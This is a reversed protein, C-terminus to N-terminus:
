IELSKGSALYGLWDRPVLKPFGVVRAFATVLEEVGRKGGKEGDRQRELAKREVEFAEEQGVHDGFFVLEELGGWDQTYKTFVGQPDNSSRRLDWCGDSNSPYYTAYGSPRIYERTKLVMPDSTGAPTLTISAHYNNLLNHTPPSTPFPLPITILFPTHKYLQQYPVVLDPNHSKFLIPSPLVFPILLIPMTHQQM